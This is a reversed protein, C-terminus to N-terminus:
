TERSSVSDNAPRDIFARLNPSNRLGTQEVPQFDDFTQALRNTIVRSFLKYVHNLLSIPRYNKLLAKDDKKFFLKVMGRSWAEPTIGNHLVSNFLSTLGILVSQGGAKLLETNIGDEGRAKNNKLHGLAIRIESM